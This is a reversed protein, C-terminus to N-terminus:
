TRVARGSGLVFHVLPLTSNSGEEDICQFDVVTFWM